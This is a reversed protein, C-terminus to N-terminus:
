CYKQIFGAYGLFSPTINDGIGIDQLDKGDGISTVGKADVGAVDEGNKDRHHPLSGM